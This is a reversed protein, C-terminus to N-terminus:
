NMHAKYLTKKAASETFLTEIIEHSNKSYAEWKGLRWTSTIKNAYLEPEFSQIVLDDNGVISRNFGVNSVIPVVGRSMAETLSNSHGERDEVTPFIFFHKSLLLPFLKETKMPGPMRVKDTLGYQNIKEKLSIVYPDNVDANGVLEMNYPVESKKLENCIEVIFDINKSPVIRGLYILEIVSSKERDNSNYPIYFEETIYNPYYLADKGTINKIFNVAEKGQCMVVTAKKVTLRFVYRYFGSRNKYATEAGGARIEYISRVKFLKCTAIFLYEIYILHFYFASLHFSDVKVTLLKWVFKIYVFGLQFLYVLPRIVPIDLPYPKGLVIVNFDLKSLMQITRKNGSEGGGIILRKKNGVPGYFLINNM